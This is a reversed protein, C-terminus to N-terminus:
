GAGRRQTPTATRRSSEEFRGTQRGGGGSATVTVGKNDEEVEVEEEKGDEDDCNGWRRGGCSLMAAATKCTDGEEGGGVRM